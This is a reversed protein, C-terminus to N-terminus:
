KSIDFQSTVPSLMVMGAKQYIAAYVWIFCIGLSIVAKFHQWSFCREQSSCSNGSFTLKLSLSYLLLSVHWMSPWTCVCEYLTHKSLVLAFSRYWKASTITKKEKWATSHRNLQLGSIYYVYFFLYEITYSVFNGALPCISRTYKWHSGWTFSDCRSIQRCICALNHWSPDYKGHCNHLYGCNFHRYKM